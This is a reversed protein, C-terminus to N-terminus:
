RGRRIRTYGQHLKNKRGKKRKKGAKAPALVQGEDGHLAGGQHKFGGAGEGSEWGCVVGGMGCGSGGSWRLTEGGGRRSGGSERLGESGGRWGTGLHAGKVVAPHPAGAAGLLALVVAAGGHRTVRRREHVVQPPAGRVHHPERHAALNCTPPSNTQCGPLLHAPAVTPLWVAPDAPPAFPLAALSCTPLRKERGVKGGALPCSSLHAAPLICTPPMLCRKHFMNPPADGGWTPSEM